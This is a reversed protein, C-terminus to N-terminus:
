SLPGGMANPDYLIVESLTRSVKSLQELSEQMRSLNDVSLSRQAEKLAKEVMASKEADLLSGFEKFSKQNSELLRELKLKLKQLEILNRDEDAKAQAEDVIREIEEETLGSSPNVVIKQENGTILDKAHVSVIGNANIDFTVEIQPIGKPAPPIGVLEFKGLSINESAVEREGQLVHIEVTDQNDLVTTFIRSKKTPIASGREILKVFMDGKTSVGLSLPIADLLVIEKVEGKMIGAQLAAGLAVVEDPNKDRRPEKGFIDAVTRIVLPTRSQGGVLLVEDIDSAKLGAIDMAEQCPKRTREVIGKIISELEERTITTVLHRPGSADAAIFPLNVETTPMASLECKAKESAEKLRQLALRDGSLDIGTERKFRGMLEAMTANDMDEGGLYTDGSTAVVEFLGDGVKLISIDFTGGGLDYVAVTKAKTEELNFAICAATPENLIRLVELGAIRGADKTAQRQPDSFYAPVTIIAEKIEEGFYEEASKKIESIIFASVEQASYERDRIKIRVDSNPAETVTYPLVKRASEVTADSFKKGILRKVAFITNTPNTVAQRKALNGVLRDGQETFAVISPTTRGGEKNPIVMPQGSEIYAMCSNTTGLDIGIVKPM